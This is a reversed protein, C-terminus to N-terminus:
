VLDVRGPRGRHLRCRHAQRHNRQLRAPPRRGRDPQCSDSPIRIGCIAKVTFPLKAIDELTRIDQPALGLEDMRVRFLKVHQRARTVIARLRTLQLERLQPVPTFDPASVPHRGTVSTATGSSM